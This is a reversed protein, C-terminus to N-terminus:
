PQSRDRARSLQGSLVGYPWSCPLGPPDYPRRGQPNAASGEFRSSFNPGDGPHPQVAYTTEHKSSSTTACRNSPLLTLVPRKAWSSWCRGGVNILDLQPPLTKELGRTKRRKSSTPWSSLNCGQRLPG